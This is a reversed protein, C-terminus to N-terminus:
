ALFLAVYLCDGARQALCCEGIGDPQSVWLRGIWLRQASKFLCGPSEGTIQMVKPM